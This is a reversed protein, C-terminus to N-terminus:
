FLVEAATKARAISQNEYDVIPQYNKEFEYDPEPGDDPGECGLCMAADEAAAIGEENLLDQFQATTYESVNGDRDMTVVAGTEPIGQMLSLIAYERASTAWFVRQGESDRVVTSIIRASDFM